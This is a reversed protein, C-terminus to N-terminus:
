EKSKVLKKRNKKCFHLKKSGYDDYTCICQIGSQCQDPNYLVSIIAPSVDPGHDLVDGVVLPEGDDQARADEVDELEGQVGVSLVVPVVGADVRGDGVSEGGGRESEAM